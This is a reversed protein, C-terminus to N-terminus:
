LHATDQQYSMGHVFMISNRWFRSSLGVFCRQVSRRRLLSESAIPPNVKDGVSIGLEELAGKSVGSLLRDVIDIAKCGVCNAVKAYDRKHAIFFCYQAEQLKKRVTELLWVLREHARGAKVVTM